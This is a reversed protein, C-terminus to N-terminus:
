PDGRTSLEAHRSLQQAKIRHTGLVGTRIGSSYRQFCNAGAGFRVAFAFVSSLLILAGLFMFAQPYTLSSTLCSAQRLLAPMGAPESSESVAGIARKNVFPVIAHGLRSKRNPL